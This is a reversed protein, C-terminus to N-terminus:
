TADGDPGDEQKELGPEGQYPGPGSRINAPPLEYLRQTELFKGVEMGTVIESDHKAMKNLQTSIYGNHWGKRALRVAEQKQEDTM